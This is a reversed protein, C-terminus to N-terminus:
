IRRDKALLEFFIMNLSDAKKLDELCHRKIRGDKLHVAFSWLDIDPLERRIEEIYDIEIIGFDPRYTKPNSILIREEKEQKEKAKLERILNETSLYAFHRNYLNIRVIRNILRSLYEMVEEVDMRWKKALNIIAADKGPKELKFQECIGLVLNDAVRIVEEDIEDKCIREFWDKPANDQTKAMV